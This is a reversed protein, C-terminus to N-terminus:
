FSVFALTFLHLYINKPSLPLCIIHANETPFYKNRNDRFMDFMECNQNQIIMPQLKCAHHFTSDLLMNRLGSFFVYFWLNHMEWAIVAAHLCLSKLQIVYYSKRRPISCNTSLRPHVTCIFGRTLVRSSVWRWTMFYRGCKIQETQRIGHFEAWGRVTGNVPMITLMKFRPSSHFLYMFTDINAYRTEITVLVLTHRVAM